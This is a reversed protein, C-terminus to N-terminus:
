QESANEDRAVMVTQVFQPVGATVALGDMNKVAFAHDNVPNGEESKSEFDRRPPILRPVLSKVLRLGCPQQLGARTASDEDGMRRRKPDGVYM